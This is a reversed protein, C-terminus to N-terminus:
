VCRVETQCVTVSVRVCEVKSVNVCEDACCECVGRVCVYGRRGHAGESHACESM